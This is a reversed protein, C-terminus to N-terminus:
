AARVATERAVAELRLCTELVLTRRDLNVAEAQRKERHLTEWLEAWRALGAGAMVRGAIRAEEGIAGEGRAAHRVLRALLDGLLAFFLEGRAEGAVGACGDAIRIALARDLNPLSALLAFLDRYLSLGGDEALMLARRVSGRSLGALVPWDASETPDDGGEPTAAACARALTEGDLPQLALRRCRSHITALLRGPEASVLLFVCRGPPEELSKLLANAANVNLEDARDIVVARWDGGGASLALFTKLRRVEDVPISATFRKRKPDWTRRIVLLGPHSMVAVQRFVRSKEPVGLDDRAFMEGAAADGGGLIFRAARYALTAKGIGEPGTILWAHHMAGARYAEGIAREAAGHGYLDATERPHAFGDLRDIEPLAEAEGVTSARRGRPAPSLAGVGPM